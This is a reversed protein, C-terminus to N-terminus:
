VSARVAARVIAAKEAERRPLGGDFEMIAAREQIFEAVDDADTLSTKVLEDNKVHGAHGVHGSARCVAGNNLKGHQHIPVRVQTGHHGGHGPQAATQEQVPSPVRRSVDPCQSTDRDADAVPRATEPTEATPVRPVRTKEDVSIRPITPLM